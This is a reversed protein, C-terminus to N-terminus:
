SWGGGGGRTVLTMGGGNLRGIGSLASYFEGGGGGSAILGEPGLAGTVDRECRVIGRKKKSLEEVGRGIGEKEQISDIRTNESCGGLFKRVGIKLGGLFWLGGAVFSGGGLNM